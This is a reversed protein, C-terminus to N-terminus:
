KINFYHRLEELRSFYGMLYLDLAVMLGSILSASLFLYLSILFPTLGGALRPLLAALIEYLGWYVLYRRGRPDLIRGFLLGLFILDWTEIFQGLSAELIFGWALVLSYLTLQKAKM